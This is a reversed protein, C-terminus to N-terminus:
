KAPAPLHYFVIWKKLDASPPTLEGPCRQIKFVTRAEDILRISFFSPMTAPLNVVVPSEGTEQFWTCDAHIEALQQASLADTTTQARLAIYAVFGFAIVVAVVVVTIIWNSRAITSIQSGSKDHSRRFPCNM